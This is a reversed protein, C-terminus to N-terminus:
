EQHAAKCCMRSSPPEARRRMHLKALFQIRRRARHIGGVMSKGSSAEVPAAVNQQIVTKQVSSGRLNARPQRQCFNGHKDRSL